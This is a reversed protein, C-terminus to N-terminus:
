THIIHDRFNFYDALEIHESIKRTSRIRLPCRFSAKNILVQNPKIFFSYYIVKSVQPTQNKTAEESIFVASIFYFTSEM